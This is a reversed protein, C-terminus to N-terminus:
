ARAETIRRIKPILPLHAPGVITAPRFERRCAKAGHRPCWSSLKEPDRVHAGKTVCAFSAAREFRHTYNARNESKGNTGSSRKPVDIAVTWAIRAGGREAQRMVQRSVERRDKERLEVGVTNDLLALVALVREALVLLGLELGARADADTPQQEGEASSYTFLLLPRRSNVVWSGAAWSRAAGDAAVFPVVIWLLEADSRTLEERAEPQLLCESVPVTGGEGDRVVADATVLLAGSLLLERDHAGFLTVRPSADELALYTVPFPPRLHRAYDQLDDAAIGPLADVQSVPCTVVHAERLAGLM